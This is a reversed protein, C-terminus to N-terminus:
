SARGSGPPRGSSELFGARAYEPYQVILGRAAAHLAAVSLQDPSIDSPLIGQGIGAQMADAVADASNAYAIVVVRFDSAIGSSLLSDVLPEFAEGSSDILIVDPLADSLKDRSRTM